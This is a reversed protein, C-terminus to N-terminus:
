PQAWGVRRLLSMEAAPMQLSMRKTVVRLEHGLQSSSHLAVPLDLAKGEDGEEGHRDPVVFSCFM